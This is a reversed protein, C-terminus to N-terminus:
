IISKWVRVSTGEQEEVVDRRVVRDMWNKKAEGRIESERICKWKSYSVFGVQTNPALAVQFM